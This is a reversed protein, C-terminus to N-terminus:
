LENAEMYADITPLTDKYDKLDNIIDEISERAHEYPNINGKVLKHIMAIIESHTDLKSIEKM